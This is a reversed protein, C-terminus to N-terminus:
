SKEKVMLWAVNLSFLFVDLSFRNHHERNRVVIGEGDEWLTVAANVLVFVEVPMQVNYHM